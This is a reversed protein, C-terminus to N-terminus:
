NGDEAREDEIKRLLLGFGMFLTMTFIIAFLGLAFHADGELIKDGWFKMGVVSLVVRTANCFIFIPIICLFYIVRLFYQKFMMIASLWALLFLTWLHEVGSCATTIIIQKNEVYLSTGQSTTDFSLFTLIGKAIITELVRMPYSVIIHVYAYNPVGLIWIALPLACILSAKTGSFFLVCAVSVFFLAFHLLQFYGAVCGALLLAFGFFKEVNSAHLNGVNKLITFAICGGLAWLSFVAQVDSSSLCLYGSWIAFCVIFLLLIAFNGKKYDINELM